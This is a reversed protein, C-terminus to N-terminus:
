EDLAGVGPVLGWNEIKVVRLGVMVSDSGADMEFDDSKM